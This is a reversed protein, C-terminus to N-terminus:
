EENTEDVENTTSTSPPKTREELAKAFAESLDPRELALFDRMQAQVSLYGRNADWDTYYAHLRPPPRAQKPITKGKSLFKEEAQLLARLALRNYHVTTVQGGVQEIAEIAATSARSIHIHIPTRLREKGKALLKVGGKKVASTNVIGSAVLDKLTLIKRDNESPGKTM